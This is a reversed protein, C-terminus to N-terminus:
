GREVSPASEPLNPCTKVERLSSVSRRVFWGRRAHMQRVAVQAARLQAFTVNDGPLKALERMVDRHFAVAHRERRWEVCAASYKSYRGHKYNPHAFWALSKGGHLNCRGNRMPRRACATGRRTRAGCLKGEHPIGTKMPYGIM